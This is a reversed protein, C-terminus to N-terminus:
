RLAQVERIVTHIYALKEVVGQTLVFPYFDAMGMSRNLSNVAYTLPLWSQIIDDFSTETYPNGRHAPWAAPGSAVSPSVTIGYAWATELTSVIHLYHAWTEAFDEWPHSTAYVSVHQERWGQAPTSNYYTQLAEQYDQREDGFVARCAELRGGDRILM